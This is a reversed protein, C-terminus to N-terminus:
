AEFPAGLLLDDVGDGDIDGAGSVSFGAVGEACALVFGSTGDLSALDVNAPLGRTSGFVVYSEGVYERDFTDAWSTGILIDALGDGNVDGAGSASFGSWAYPKGGAIKFGQIGDLTALDVSESFPADRGFVVYTAGAQVREGVDAYPAAIGRKM